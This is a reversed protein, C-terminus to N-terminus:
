CEEFIPGFDTDPCSETVFGQEVLVEPQNYKKLFKLIMRKSDAAIEPDAEASWNYVVGALKINRHSAMEISMITHNLSGLRGSTVLILPYREAAVFDVTLLEETLPVALGGAGELLVLDYNAAVKKVAARIAELDVQRHERAAAFHPSAPFSFIAPATLGAEDEPFSKVGMIARHKVIDESFGVNGTQVLKMTIVRRGARHLYRAMMGVAVTKGIDTDIGSIFYVSM